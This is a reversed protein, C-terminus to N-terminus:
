QGGLWVVIDAVSYGTVYSISVLLLVLVVVVLLVAQYGHKVYVDALWSKITNMREYDGSTGLFRFNCDSVCVPLYGSRDAYRDNCEGFHIYYRFCPLM